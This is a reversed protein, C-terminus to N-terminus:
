INQLIYILDKKHKEPHGHDQDLVHSLKYLLISEAKIVKFEVGCYLYNKYEYDLRGGSLLQVPFKMGSFSVFSEEYEDSYGDEQSLGFGILSNISDDMYDSCFDIDNAERPKLVGQVALALSGSLYMFPDGKLAKVVFDLMQKEKETLLSSNVERM